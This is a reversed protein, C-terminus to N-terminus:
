QKKEQRVYHRMGTTAAQAPSFDPAPDFQHDTLTGDEKPVGVVFMPPAPPPAYVNSGSTSGQRPSYWAESVNIGAHELNALIWEPKRDWDEGPGIFRYRYFYKTTPLAPPVDEGNPVFIYDEAAQQDSSDSGSSSVRAGACGIFLLALFFSIVCLSQKM